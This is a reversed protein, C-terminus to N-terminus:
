KKLYKKIKKITQKGAEFFGEKRLVTFFKHSYKYVKYNVSKEYEILKEQVERVEQMIMDYDTLGADHPAELASELWEISRSREDRLIEDIAKWNIAEKLIHDINKYDTPSKVIRSELDLIRLLSYFRGNGRTEHEIVLFRKHFIIAMCMGHFSDTVVFEANRILYLWDSVKISHELKLNWGDIRKQTVAMGTVNVSETNLISKINETVREKNLNPELMYSLIYNKDRRESEESISEFIQREVLFVPDIVRAAEIGFTNRLIDVGSTERISVRDFRKLYYRMEQNQKQTGYYYDHGFSTAYSIKRKNDQVFDLTYFNGQERYLESKWIQDSAVVFTDCRDNLKWLDAKSNMVPAIDYQKYHRDVFEMIEPLTDKYNRKVREIMLVEYNMKKLVTYLAFHSVANGYNPGSWVGVLGIDYKRNLALEMKHKISCSNQYIDFFRERQNHKRKPTYFGRNHSKICELTSKELVEFSEKVSNFLEQGKENNVSVWSLGATDNYKNGYNEIGWCDGVSIDATRPVVSYPCTDCSPRQLMAELFAKYFVDSKEYMIREKGSSKFYLTDCRWGLRKNRFDIREIEEGEALEDFYDHFIKPSPVGHCIIDMTYLNDYDKALYAKLGAVQCPCGSFLVKGTELAKKVERFILGTDSQVYKSGRLEDLGSEEGVMQFEVTFDDTYRAGAVKGHESLIKKALIPFVAGSASKEREKLAGAAMYIQPERWNSNKGKLAPCSQACLGCEVCVEKQIYPYVFGEADQKKIIANHTCANFCAGCGTCEKKDKGREELLTYETGGM